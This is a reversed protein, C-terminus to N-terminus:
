KRDNIAAVRRANLERQLSQMDARGTYVNMLEGLYDYTSRMIQVEDGDFKCVYAVEQENIYVDATGVKTSNNCKRTNEILISFRDKFRGLIALFSVKAIKDIINKEEANYKAINAAIRNNRDSHYYEMVDKLKWGRSLLNDVILKGSDVNFKQNAAIERMYELFEGHTTLKAVDVMMTFMKAVFGHNNELHRKIAKFCVTYIARLNRGLQVFAKQDFGEHRACIEELHKTATSICFKDMKEYQDKDQLNYSAVDSPQFQPYYAIFRAFIGVISGSMYHSLDIEMGSETTLFWKFVRAYEMKDGKTVEIRKGALDYTVPRKIIVYQFKDGAEPPEYLALMQNLRAIETSNRGEHIINCEYEHAINCKEKCTKKCKKCEETCGAAIVRRARLLECQAKMRRVFTKIAVNQKDPKYKGNQVFQTFDWKTAYIIDLKEHVIDLISKTNEPSIAERIVDMGFRKALATQGQKVIDIGKILIKEDVPYFNITKIHPTMFYKKKGLFCTPFGVEEYSFAITRTGNDYLFKEDIRIKQESMFKMSLEVMKTWYELKTLKGDAFDRDVNVFIREPAQEYNSDTDGYITKCGEAKTWEICHKITDQGGLTTGASVLLEYLPSKFNGSEGYFTNLFVKIAKQKANVFDRNFRLEPLRPDDINAKEIQEVEKELRVYEAKIPVRKDFLNKLIYAFAGMSEGPLADRGRIERYKIDRSKITKSSNTIFKLVTEDDDVYAPGEERAYPDELTVSRSSPIEKVYTYTTGDEFTFVTTKEWATIARRNRETAGNHRVTWGHTTLKKNTSAGKKEGREYEFQQIRHLCYGAAILERAQEVTRVVRDPSLNKAIMNSPYESSADMGTVPRELNLGREPPVVYAGPYHDKNSAHIDRKYNNFAKNHKFCWAGVINRVKMGDANYWAAYYKVFSMSALQRKDQNVLQRVKLQQPRRCDINCYFAVDTMDAVNQAYKACHCCKAADIKLQDTYEQDLGEITEAAVYDLEKVHNHCMQCNQLDGACHCALAAPNAKFWRAREVIKFMRKYPMDEKSPLKNLELYFNLSYSKGVEGKPYIKRFTIMVDTDIFGPMDMVSDLDIMTEADIKVPVKRFNYKYISEETDKYGAGLASLSEKMKLLLGYRRAQERILPTDFDAGNFASIIDPQMNGLATFHSQLNSKEDRCIIAVDIGERANVPNDVCCVSYIPEDSYHYYLNFCLMFITFDTDTKRPAQGNQVTRYTEIDEIVEHLKDKQLVDVDTIPHLLELLRASDGKTKKDLKKLDKISIRLTYQCKSNACQEYKSAIIGNPTGYSEYNALINWDATKFRYDRAIKNFWGENSDSNALELADKNVKRRLESEREIFAFVKKREYLNEFPIRVYPEPNIRFEKFYRMHVISMEGHNIENAKDKFKAVLYSIYKAPDAMFEAPVKIDIYVPVDDVVLCTKSGDPTIGFMYIRYKGREAPMETIANPIFLIPRCNAIAEDYRAPTLDARKPLLGLEEDSIVTPIHNRVHHLLHERTRDAFKCSKDCNFSEM